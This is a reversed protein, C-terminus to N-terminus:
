KVRRGLKIPNYYSIGIFYEFSGPKPDKGM